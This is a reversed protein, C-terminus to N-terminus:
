VAEELSVQGNGGNGGQRTLPKRVEASALWQIQCRSTGPIQTSALAGICPSGAYQGPQALQQVATRLAKTAGVFARSGKEGFQAAYTNAVLALPIPSDKTASLAGYVSAAIVVSQNTHGNVVTVTENENITVIIHEMVYGKRKAHAANSVHKKDALLAILKLQWGTYKTCKGAAQAGSSVNRM